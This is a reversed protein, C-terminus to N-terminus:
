YTKPVGDCVFRPYAQPMGTLACPMTQDVIEVLATVSGAAYVDCGSSDFVQSGLFGCQAGCSTQGTTRGGIGTLAAEPPEFTIEANPALTMRPGDALEVNVVCTGTYRNRVIVEGPPNVCGALTVAFLFIKKM